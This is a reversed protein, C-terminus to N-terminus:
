QEFVRSAKAIGRSLIYVAALVTFTTWWDRDSIGDAIWALLALGIAALVVFVAEANGPIPLTGPLQVTPRSSYGGTGPGGPRDSSPTTSM